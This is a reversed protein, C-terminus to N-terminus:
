NEEIVIPATAATQAALRKDNLHPVADPADMGLLQNDVTWGSFKVKSKDLYGNHETEFDVPGYDKPRNQFHKITPEMQCSKQESNTEPADRRNDQVKNIGKQLKLKRIKEKGSSFGQSSSTTDKLTVGVDPKLSEKLSNAVEGSKKGEFLTKEKKSSISIKNQVRFKAIQGVKTKSDEELKSPASNQYCKSRVNDGLDLSANKNSNDVSQEWGTEELISRKDRKKRKGSSRSRGSISELSDEKASDSSFLGGRLANQNAEASVDCVRTTAEVAINVSSTPATHKLDNPFSEGGAIETEHKKKILSTKGSEVNMRNGHKSEVMEESKEILFITKKENLQKRNGLVSENILVSPHKQCAKLLPISKNERSPREKEKRLLCLQSDHLPSILVVGPVHNSTMVQLISEQSIKLTGGSEDPSNGLSSSPSFDLGLGSYVAAVKQEKKDSGMKIRVKLTKQDSPIEARNFSEDKLYSKEAFQASTLHM